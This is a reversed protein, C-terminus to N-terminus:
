GAAVLELECYVTSNVCELWCRVANNVCELCGSEQRGYPETVKVHGSESAPYLLQLNCPQTALGDTVGAIRDPHFCVPPVLCM